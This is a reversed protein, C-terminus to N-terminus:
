LSCLQPSLKSSKGQAKQDTFNNDINEDQLCHYLLTEELYMYTQARTQSSPLGSHVCATSSYNSKVFIAAWCFTKSVFTDAMEHTLIHLQLFEIKAM